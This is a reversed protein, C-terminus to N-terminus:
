QNKIYLIRDVVDKPIVRAIGDHVATQIIQDDNKSAPTKLGTPEVKLLVWYEHNENNEIEGHILELKTVKRIDIQM